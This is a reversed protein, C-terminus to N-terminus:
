FAEGLAVHLVAIPERHGSTGPVPPFREPFPVGKALNDPLRMGLDARFPGVATRYRVGVGFAWQLTSLDLVDRWQSPVGSAVSVNGFDLFVAGVLSGSLVHRAEISGDFLGNGGTPVWDGDQNVMPSLRDQGYGRMSNPGGGTFLAVLPAPGNEGVPVIAGLRARAALVGDRGLPHFWRAEPFFRLYVYGQGGTPFGEQLSFALYYGATTFLPHDRRDFSVREELYSLVCLKQPCNQVPLNAPDGVVETLQYIELNYSPVFTWRPAPRIPTGFRFKESVSGYAQELSQELEVSTTFDVADGVIAPQTFGLVGKGVFGQRTPSFPTPIWAYGARADFRLQRLDGLWNRHIWTAQGLVEWRSPQFGIGPGLRLTRFPAERVSLYLPLEDEAHAPTPPGEAPDPDERSVRVGSFVGLELVRSQLQELLRDDWFEGPKVVREARQM